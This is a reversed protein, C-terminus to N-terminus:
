KPTKPRKPKPKTPGTLFNVTRNDPNEPSAYDAASGISNLTGDRLDASAGVAANEDDNQVVTGVAREDHDNEHRAQQPKAACAALTLAILFSISTRRMEEGEFM